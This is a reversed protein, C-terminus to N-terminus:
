VLTRLARKPLIVSDLEMCELHNEYQEIIWETSGKAVTTLDEGSLDFEVSELDVAMIKDKGEDTVLHFNDLKMDDHYAGHDALSTFTQDLLVRLDQKELVAGEPTALCEGGIDSLILTRINNHQIMGFFRPIFTGQLPQLKHYAKLEKDFEEEWNPKQSKLVIREPLFWEPFKNQLWQGTAGSIVWFLSQLARDFFTRMVRLRLVNPHVDDSSEGSATITRTGFRFRKSEITNAFRSAKSCNALSVTTESKRIGATEIGFSQATPLQDPNEM